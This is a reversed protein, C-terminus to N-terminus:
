SNFDSLELLRNLQERYDLPSEKIKIAPSRTSAPLKWSEVGHLLVQQRIGLYCLKECGPSRLSSQAIAAPIGKGPEVEGSERVAIQRDLGAILILLLSAALVTMASFAAPWGWRRAPPIHPGRVGCYVCAFVHDRAASCPAMEQPVTSGGAAAAKQSLEKALLLRWRPDLRDPRPQLGALAAEFATLDQHPNEKDPM